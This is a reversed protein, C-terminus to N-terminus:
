RRLWDRLGGLLGRRTGTGQAVPRPRTSSTNGSPDGTRHAILERIWSRELESIDTFRLGLLYGGRNSLTAHAVQGTLLLERRAHPVSVDLGVELQDGCSPMTTHRLAVGGESINTIFSECREGGPIAVAVPLELNHRSNTRQQAAAIM